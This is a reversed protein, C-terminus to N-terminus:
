HHDLLSVYTYNKSRVYEFDFTDTAIRELAM